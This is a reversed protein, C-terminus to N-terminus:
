PLQQIASAGNLSQHIAQLSCEGLIHLCKEETVKTNISAAVILLMEFESFRPWIGTHQIKMGNSQIRKM